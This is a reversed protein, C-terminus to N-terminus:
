VHDRNLPQRSDGGCEQEHTQRGKDPLPRPGHQKLDAIGIHCPEQDLKAVQQDDEQRCGIVVEERLQRLPRTLPPVHQQGVAERGHQ